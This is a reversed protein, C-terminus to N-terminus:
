YLAWKDNAYSEVQEIAADSLGGNFFMGELLHGAIPDDGDQSGVFISRSTATVGPDGDAGEEWVSLALEVGNRRVTTGVFTGDMRVVIVSTGNMWSTDGEDVSLVVGDGDSRQVVLGPDAAQVIDENGAPGEAWWLVGGTTLKLVWVLTFAGVSLTVELLDNVGDFLVGPLSNQVNTKYLPRATTFGALPHSNGSSDLWTGVPDNNSLSLADAKWWAALGAIENPALAELGGGSVVRRGRGSGLYNM